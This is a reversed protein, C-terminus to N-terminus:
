YKGREFPHEMVVPEMETEQEEQISFQLTKLARPRADELESLWTCIQAVRKKLAEVTFWQPRIDAPNLKGAM